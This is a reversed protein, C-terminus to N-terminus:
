RKGDARGLPYKGVASNERRSASSGCSGLIINQPSTVDTYGKDDATITITFGNIGVFTCPAIGSAVSIQSVSLDNYDGITYSPLSLCEISGLDHVQRDRPLEFFLTETNATFVISSPWEESRRQLQDGIATNNSLLEYSEPFPTSRGVSIQLLWLLVVVTRGISDLFMM